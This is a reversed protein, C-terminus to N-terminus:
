YYCHKCNSVLFKVQEKSTWYTKFHKSRLPDFPPDWRHMEDFVCLGAMLGLLVLFIPRATM